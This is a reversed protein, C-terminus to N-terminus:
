YYAGSWLYPEIFTKFGPVDEIMHLIVSVNDLDMYLKMLLPITPSDKDYLKMSWQGLAVENHM